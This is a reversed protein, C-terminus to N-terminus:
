VGFPVVKCQASCRCHIAAVFFRSCKRCCRVGPWEEFIVNDALGRTRHLEEPSRVTWAIVPIGLHRMAQVMGRDLGRIDFGIFHPRSLANMLLHGMAWRRLWHDGNNTLNMTALQGRAWGPRDRSFWHIIQPDFAQVAFEGPYQDLMTVLRDVPIDRLRGKVEVLLPVQGNVQALVARLTPLLGDTGSLSLRELDACCTERVLGPVGCMRLLDPDHFVMPEGDSSFHIDCEIPLGATIARAFAEPSNEPVGAGHLGRHAIPRETLWKPLDM